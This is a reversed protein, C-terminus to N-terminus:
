KVEKINIKPYEVKKNYIAGVEYAMGIMSLLDSRNATLDYEIVVDDYNLYKLADDGVVADDGLVHIGKKDEEKLYKSEIGLEALSCVMGCSEIGRIETKEISMNPLKAGMRAVIVKQNIDVNPAGCVITYVNDKLDVKLVSM